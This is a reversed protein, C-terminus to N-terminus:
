EILQWDKRDRSYNMHDTNTSNRGGNVFTFNRRDLGGDQVTQGALRPREQSDPVPYSDLIAWEGSQLSNQQTESRVLAQYQGHREQLSRHRDLNILSPDLGHELLLWGASGRRGRWSTRPLGGGLSLSHIPGAVQLREARPGKWCFGLFTM